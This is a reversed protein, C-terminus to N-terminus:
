CFGYGPHIAEAASKRAIDCIREKNLYSELTGRWCLVGRGRISTSRTRTLISYIAVTDIDSVPLRMVRIACRVRNAILIKDFYKTM